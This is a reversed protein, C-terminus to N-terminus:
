ECCCSSACAAIRDPFTPYLMGYLNKGVKHCCGCFVSPSPNKAIGVRVTPFGSRPLVVLQCPLRCAAHQWSIQVPQAEPMRFIAEADPYTGNQLIPYTKLM